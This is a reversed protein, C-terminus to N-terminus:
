QVHSDEKTLVEWPLNITFRSGAGLSSEVSVSGGHLDALRRVLALGLGIGSYQRALRADLQIFPQFLRPYDESSIGIGTDWVTIRIQDQEPFGEVEIGFSGGKPTFKIANNLLHTLMQKLRRGDVHAVVNAPNIRLSASLQKQQAYKEVAKLTSQCFEALSCPTFQLQLKGSEIMSYDLINNIVELLQRGSTEIHRVAALQKEALAGYTEMQLAESLGLIGTLPTRLEHSMSAMFEDKLRNSKELALNAARLDATREVVRRELLSTAELLAAEARKRASIDYASGRTGLIREDADWYQKANFILTVERGDKALYSTEYRSVANGMMVNKFELRDKEAQERRQFDGFPRGLMEDLRYGLVEEWAPNLFIYRGEIDTEWILDQATELLDLYHQESKKLMEQAQNRAYIENNLEVTREAVLEELHDKYQKERELRWLNELNVALMNVFNSLAPRYREFEEASVLRVFVYGYEFSGTQVPFVEGLAQRPMEISCRKQDDPIQKLCAFVQDAPQVLDGIIEAQWRLALCCGAVGPVSRVAQAVFEGMKRADLFINLMSQAAFLQNLTRIEIM